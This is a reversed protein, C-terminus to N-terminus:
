RLGGGDSKPVIEVEKEEVAKKEAVTPSVKVEELAIIQNRSPMVFSGGTKSLFKYAVDSFVAGLVGNVLIKAFNLEKTKAGVYIELLFSFILGIGIAILRIRKAWNEPIDAKIYQVIAFVCIAVGLIKAVELFKPLIALWEEM